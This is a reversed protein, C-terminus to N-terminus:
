KQASSDGKGRVRKRITTVSGSHDIVLTLDDKLSTGKTYIEPPLAFGGKPLRHGEVEGCTGSIGIHGDSAHYRVLASGRSKDMSFGICELSYRSIGPDGRFEMIGKLINARIKITSKKM